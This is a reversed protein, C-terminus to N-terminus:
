GSKAVLFIPREPREDRAKTIEAALQDARWMLYRYDQLDRFIHGWGHSWYFHRIEHKVGARPLAHDASIDLGDFGGIGQIIFVVGTQSPTKRPKAAAHVPRSISMTLLVGVIIRIAIKMVAGRM